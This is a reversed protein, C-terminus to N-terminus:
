RYAGSVQAQSRPAVGVNTDSFFEVYQVNLTIAESYRLVFSDGDIQYYRESLDTNDTEKDAELPRRDAFELVIRDLEGTPKVFFDAVFGRVVYCKGGYAVVAAVLADAGRQAAQVRLLYYWPADIGFVRYLRSEPLHWGQHEALRRVAPALAFPALLISMYYLLVAYQHAAVRQIADAQAPGYSGLLLLFDRLNPAWGFLRALGLWIVHLVAAFAVGLVVAEGFPAYDLSTREVRRYRSRFVFGPALTLFVVVASLAVNM